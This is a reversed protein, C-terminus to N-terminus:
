DPAFRDTKGNESPVGSGSSPASAIRYDGTDTIAITVRHVLMGDGDRPISVAIRFPVLQGTVLPGWQINIESWAPLVYSELEPLAVYAIAQVADIDYGTSGRIIARFDTPETLKLYSTEPREFVSTRAFVSINEAAM